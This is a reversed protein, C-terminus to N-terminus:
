DKSMLSEYIITVFSVEYKMEVLEATARIESKVDMAKSNQARAVISSKELLRAIEDNKSAIMEDRRKADINLHEAEAKLARNEEEFFSKSALATNIDSLFSDFAELLLDTKMDQM